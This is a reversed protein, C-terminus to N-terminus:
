QVADQLHGDNTVSEEANGAHMNLARVQEELKAVSEKEQDTKQDYIKKLMDMKDEPLKVTSNNHIIYMDTEEGVGQAKESRRKAEYTMAAVHDTDLEPDYDNAIFTSISHLDGSGIACHGIADYSELRGPNDIRYIHGGLRDVGAILISVNYNYQQMAQAINAVMEPALSRNAQYFGQLNLGITALIDQELKANRANVYAMRAMEAIQQISECTETSRGAKMIEEHIPALGLANGATSAVCNNAISVTKPM